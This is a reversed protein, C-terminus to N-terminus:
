IIMRQEGEGLGQCGVMRSETEVFKVLFQTFQLDSCINDKQSQNIESLMDELNM